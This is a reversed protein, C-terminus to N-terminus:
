VSVVPGPPMPINLTGAGRAAGGRRPTAAASRQREAARRAAWYYCAAGVGSGILHAMGDVM